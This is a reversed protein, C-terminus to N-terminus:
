QPHLILAVRVCFCIKLEMNTESGVSKGLLSEKIQQNDFYATGKAGSKMLAQM